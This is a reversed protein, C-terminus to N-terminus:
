RAFERHLEGLGLFVVEALVIATKVTALNLDVVNGVVAAFVM